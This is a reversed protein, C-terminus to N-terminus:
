AQRTEPLRVAVGHAFRDNEVLRPHDVSIDAARQDLDPWLITVRRCSRPSWSMPAETVASKPNDVFRSQVSQWDASFRGRQAATLTRILRPDMLDLHMEGEQANFQARVDPEAARRSLCVM